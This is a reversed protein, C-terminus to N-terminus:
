ELNHRILGLERDRGTIEQKSVIKHNSTIPTKAFLCIENQREENKIMSQLYIANKNTQKVYQINM